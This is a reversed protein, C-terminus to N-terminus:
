RPRKSVVQNEMALRKSMVQPNGCGISVSLGVQRVRNVRKLFIMCHEDLFTM